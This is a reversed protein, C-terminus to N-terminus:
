TTARALERPLQRTVHPFPFRESSRTFISLRRLHSSTTEFVHLTYSIIKMSISEHNKVQNLLCDKKELVFLVSYRSRLFIISFYFCNQKAFRNEYSESNKSMVTDAPM